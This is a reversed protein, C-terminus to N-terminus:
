EVYASVANVVGQAGAVAAVVTAPDRVDAAVSFVRGAGLSGVLADARDPNRVAIRPTAGERVLREVVRHGLFGTGGFVTVLTMIPWGTFRSLAAGFSLRHARRWCVGKADRSILIEHWWLEMFTISAPRM